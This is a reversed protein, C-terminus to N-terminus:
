VNASVLLHSCLLTIQVTGQVDNGCRPRDVNRKRSEHLHLAQRAMGLSAEDGERVPGDRLPGALIETM